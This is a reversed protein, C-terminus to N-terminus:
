SATTSIIGGVRTPGSQWPTGTGDGPEDEPSTRKSRTSCKRNPWENRKTALTASPKKTRSIASSQAELQVGLLHSASAAFSEVGYQPDLFSGLHHDIQERIMDTILDRCNVGDLIRQRFSYVRKRQEDM